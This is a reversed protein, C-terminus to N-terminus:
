KQQDLERIIPAYERAMANVLEQYSSGSVFKIKLQLKQAAELIQPDETATKFAAELKSRIEQPTGAPVIISMYSVQSHDFGAEKMTPVGQGLAPIPDESTILLATLEGAQLSSAVPGVTSNIVDIHGGLAASVLQDSGNFPVYRLKIGLDRAIREAVLQDTTGRGLGGYTAKGPNEKAYKVFDDWTKFPGSGGAITMYEYSVVAAIQAIDKEADYPVKNIQPLISLAPMNATGITYGDPESRAVEAVGITGSAGPRNSVVITGGLEKGARDALMRAAIDTTSGAGFNVILTIPKEPYEALAPSSFATLAALALATASALIPYNM